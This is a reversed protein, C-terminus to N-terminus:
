VVDIQTARSIRDSLILVIKFAADSHLPQSGDGIVVSSAEISRLQLSLVVAEPLFFTFHAALHGFFCLTSPNPRTIFKM